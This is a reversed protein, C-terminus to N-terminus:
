DGPTGPPVKKFINFRGLLRNKRSIILVELLILALAIALIYQYQENYDEFVQMTLQKKEVENIQQIIENLGISRNTARIYSGGTTLAIRELTEEDLRTLAMNGEEDMIYDGNLPIPVARDGGVGITYIKIGKEMAMQAAAVPDDEHNEGDSIIILVRSGESGSSFSLTALDIAAGIATGQRSVMNPSLQRVFNRAAVYDSTIPLQVYAEGAFVILGIQDEDLQEILRSIAFKTRELRNPEFDEALMSNSVDVAIMIEIGTRTVEKLKSGFQPRALAVCILGVALLVLVFKHRARKPSAEPMLQSVLAPNGFRALRRKRARM